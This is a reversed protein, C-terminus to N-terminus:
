LLPVSYFRILFPSARRLRYTGAAPLTINSRINAYHVAKEHKKM